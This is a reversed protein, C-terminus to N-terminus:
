ERVDDNEDAPNSLRRIVIQMAEIAGQQAVRRTRVDTLAMELEHENEALRTAATRLEDLFQELVEM